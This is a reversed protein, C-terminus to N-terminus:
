QTKPFRINKPKKKSYSLTVHPQYDPYKNNYDIGKSDFARKIKTRLEHLQKSEVPAIVPYGNTGDSSHRDDNKPFTTIKRCTVLFPELSEAVKFVVPIIRVLKDVSLNDGLYFMTIHDSPDREGPVEISRFLRGIERPVPVAIMAM